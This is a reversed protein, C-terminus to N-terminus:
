VNNKRRFVAIPLKYGNSTCYGEKFTITYDASKEYARMTSLMFLVFDESSNMPAEETSVADSDHFMQHVYTDIKKDSYQNRLIQLFSDDNKNMTDEVAIPIGEHRVTRETRRYMSDRDATMYKYAEIGDSMYGIVNEENSRKLLDIIKGKISMDNNIMYRIKETSVRTYDSHKQDIQAIMDEISEYTSIIENIMIQTQENGQEEDTFIKRQIGQKVIKAILSEDAYWENLIRIISVKFRPVSDITKLPYYITDLVKEKYEDFYSTILSNVQVNKFAMTEYHKINQFLIKLEEVLKSTYTYASNLAEFLYDKNESAKELSAYTSYVYSNYEAPKANSLDYLLNIIQISYDPVTINRQFNNDTEEEIWGTNVLHRLLMHVKASLDSMNENLSGDEQEEESFDSNNFYDEFQDMLTSILEERSIILETRKFADRIVFLADLYLEKKSSTLVTFLRGPINDFLAM